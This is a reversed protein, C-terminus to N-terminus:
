EKELETLRQETRNVRSALEGHEANMAAFTAGMHKTIGVTWYQLSEEKGDLRKVMITEAGLGAIEIEGGQEKRRRAWEALMLGILVGIIVVVGMFLPSRGRVRTPPEDDEDDDDNRQSRRVPRAGRAAREDRAKQNREERREERQEPTLPPRGGKNRPM